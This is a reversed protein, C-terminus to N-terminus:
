SDKFVEVLVDEPYMGVQGFRPDHIREVAINRTKCILSAKRGKSAAEKASLNIGNLNAFGMVTFKHGSPYNYREQEAEIASIRSQQEVQTSQLALMKKEQDVLRQAQALLIEAPTLPKETVLRKKAEMFAKVLNIKAQVVQETNRSLTMLFTAQEELLWAFKEPQGRGKIEGNEFRLIGFNKELLPEYKKIVNKAWDSHNLGLEEAVLRSDIVLVGDQEVVTLNSM